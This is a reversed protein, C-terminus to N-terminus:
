MMERRVTWFDDALGQLVFQYPLYGFGSVGWATSWSNQFILCQNADDYGVFLVAHGGEFQEDPAPFKVMGTRTCEDTMMNAPVSFGGVAPFGQALCTKISQLNALSYYTLIEHKTAEAYATASPEVSFKLTDYPVTKELCTGFSRLAKMVDRIQCGSDDAPDIREIKVRSVYYLFIRSLAPADQGLQKKYLYEMGSTSSNATCSGLEGQDEIVPCWQRLDVRPPLPMVMLQPHAAHYMLDRHDPRDKRWGHLHRMKGAVVVKKGDSSM